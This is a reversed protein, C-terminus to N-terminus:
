REKRITIKDLMDEYVSQEFKGTAKCLTNAKSAALAHNLCTLADANKELQTAYAGVFTDGSGVSNVCPTDPAFGHYTGEDTTLVAGKAGLSVVVHKVGM